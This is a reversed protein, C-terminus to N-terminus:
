SNRLLDAESPNKLVESEWGKTQLEAILAKEFDAEKKFTM